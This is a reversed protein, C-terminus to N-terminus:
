RFGWWPQLGWSKGTRGWLEFGGIDGEDRMEWQEARCDQDETWAGEEDWSMEVLASEGSRGWLCLQMTSVM